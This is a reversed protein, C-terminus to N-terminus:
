AACARLRRYLNVGSRLTNLATSVKGNGDVPLLGKNEIHGFVSLPFRKQGSGFHHLGSLIFLWALSRAIHSRSFRPNGKLRLLTSQNANTLNASWKWHLVHQEDVLEATGNFM